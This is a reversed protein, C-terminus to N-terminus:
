YRLMRWDRQLLALPNSTMFYRLSTPVFRYADPPSGLGSEVELSTTTPVYRPRDNSGSVEETFNTEQSNVADLQQLWSSWDEYRLIWVRCSRDEGWVVIVENNKAGDSLALVSDQDLIPLSSVSDTQISDDGYFNLILRGIAPNGPRERVLAIRNIDCGGNPGCIYIVPTDPQFNTFIGPFNKVRFIQYVSFDKAQFDKAYQKCEENVEKLLPHNEINCALNHGDNEHGSYFYKQEM